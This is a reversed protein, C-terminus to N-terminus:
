LLNEEWTILANHYDEYDGSTVVYVNVKQSM